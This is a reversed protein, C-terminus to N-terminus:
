PLPALGAAQRLTNQQFLQQDRQSTDRYIVGGHKQGVFPILSASGGSSLRPATMVIWLGSDDTGFDIGHYVFVFDGLEHQTVNDPLAAVAEEVLQAQRTADASLFAELTASGVAVSALGGSQPDCILQDASLYGEHVLRIAHDPGTNNHDRAYSCLANTVAVVKQHHTLPTAVGGLMLYILGFYLAVLGAILALPFVVVALTARVAGVQQATMLMLVASVVCWIWSVYIGCCPVVLLVNAGSSYCVAQFTRGIPHAVPGSLRLIAHASLGWLALVVCIPILAVAFAGCCSPAASSLGGGLISAALMPVLAAGVFVLNSLIAFSWGSGETGAAPTLAILRSPRFMAMGITKAWATLSGQDQRDLWPSREAKTDEEATDDAPLVAMDDM